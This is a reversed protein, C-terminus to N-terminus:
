MRDQVTPVCLEYIASHELSVWIGGEDTEYGTMSRRSLPRMWQQPSWIVFALHRWPGFHFSIFHKVVGRCQSPFPRLSQAVGELVQRTSKAGAANSAMSMHIARLGTRVGELVQMSREAKPAHIAM